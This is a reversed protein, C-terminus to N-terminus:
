AVSNTTAPANRHSARSRRRLFRGMSARHQRLYCAQAVVITLWPLAAALPKDVGTAFMLGVMLPAAVATAVERRRGLSLLTAAAVLGLVFCSMWQGLSTAPEVLLVGGSLASGGACAGAVNWPSWWSTGARVARWHKLDTTERPVPPLWRVLALQHEKADDKAARWVLTGDRNAAFATSEVAWRSTVWSLGFLWSTAVATTLLSPSLDTASSLGGVARVAYGAGVAVWIAAIGPTVSPPVRGTHGTSVNRLAEYVAALSFTAVTLVVMTAGARPSVWWCIASAGLVKLGATFGSWMFRSSRLEVPGPLRGRDGDPHSQDADFGRIDNWQYRAQYVLLEFCIWIVVAEAVVEISPVGRGAAGLVFGLPFIVWKV